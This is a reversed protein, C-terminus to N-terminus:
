IIVVKGTQPRNFLLSIANTNEVIIQDPLIVKGGGGPADFVQVIVDVTGLGHVFLGSVINTFTAAFKSVTSTGSGQGIITIVNGASSVSIGSLGIITIAPGFQNNISVIGSGSGGGSGTGSGPMSGLSVISGIGLSM